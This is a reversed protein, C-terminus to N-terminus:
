NFMQELLRVAIAVAAAFVSENYRMAVVWFKM